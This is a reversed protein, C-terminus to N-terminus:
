KGEGAYEIVWVYPNLAWPYDPNIKDWLWAYGERATSHVGCTRTDHHFVVNVQNLGRLRRTQTKINALNAHMMERAFLLPIDKM